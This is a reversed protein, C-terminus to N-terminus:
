PRRDRSPVERPRGERPPVDRPRVDRSPQQILIKAQDSTRSPSLLYATVIIVTNALLIVIVEVLLVRRSYNRGLLPIAVLPVVYLLITSIVSFVESPRESTRFFICGLTWFVLYAYLLGTLYIKWCKLFPFDPVKALRFGQWLFTAGILPFVVVLFFLLTAFLNILQVFNLGEPM